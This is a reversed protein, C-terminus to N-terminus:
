ESENKIQIAEEKGFPKTYLILIPTIFYDVVLATVLGLASLFGIRVMNNMPSFMYTVFALTLIITTMTLTIGISKFSNIIAKEYNNHMEFEYKIHNIFHITDDVAIGLLMPLVTMTMMDLSLHFYGM